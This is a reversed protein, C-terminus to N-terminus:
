AKRKYRGRPYVGRNGQANNKESNQVRGKKLALARRAAHLPLYVCRRLMSREGAYKFASVANGRRKLSRLLMRDKKPAQSFVICLPVAHWISIRSSLDTKMNKEKIANVLFHAISVNAARLYDCSRGQRPNLELIYQKGDQMLIDFNAIGTYRIRELFAVLRCTLADPPRSLIAAYNGRAGPAQEEILVEGLVGRKVRGNRDAMLTLTKAGPPFDMSGIRQQLILKGDYGSAFIKEAMDLAAKPNRPFYVKEMGQFPHDYYSVSSSPKLVAPYSEVSLFKSLSLDEVSLITTKPYPLGEKELMEYFAAKDSVRELIERSPLLFRYANCLRDRNRSLFAVYWDGCPILYPQEHVEQAYRLLAEVGIADDLINPEVHVEVFSSTATIGCRYRCFVDCKVGFASHFSVAVSYANLDGGLLVVKM